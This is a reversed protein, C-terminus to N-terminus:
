RARTDTAVAVPLDSRGGHQIVQAGRFLQRIAAPRAEHGRAACFESLVLDDFPDPGAAHALDIAGAVQAELAVHRQLYKGVGDGRIAGREITALALCSRRRRQVVRVDDGDVVDGLFVADRVLGGADAM